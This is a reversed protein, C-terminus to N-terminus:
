PHDITSAKSISLPRDSEDGRRGARTEGGGAPVAFIRGDERPIEAPGPRLRVSYSNGWEEHPEGKRRPVKRPSGISRRRWRCTM